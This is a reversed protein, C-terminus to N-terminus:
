RTAKLAKIKYSISTNLEGIPTRAIFGGRIGPDVNVSVAVTKAGAAERVADGIEQVVRPPLARALTLDVLLHQHRLWIAHALDLVFQDVQREMKHAVLVEVMTAIVDGYRYRDLLEVFGRALKRRSYRQM